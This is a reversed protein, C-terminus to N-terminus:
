IKSFHGARSGSIVSLNRIMPPDKRSKPLEAIVERCRM